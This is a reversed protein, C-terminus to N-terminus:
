RRQVQLHHKLLHSQVVHEPLSDNALLSLPMLKYLDLKM